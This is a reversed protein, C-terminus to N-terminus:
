KHHFRLSYLEYAPFRFDLCCLVATRHQYRRRPKFLLPLLTCDYLCRHLWVTKVSNLIYRKDERSLNSKKPPPLIWLSALLHNFVHFKMNYHFRLQKKKKLFFSTEYAIRWACYLLGRCAYWCLCLTLLGECAYQCFVWVCSKLHGSLPKHVILCGQVDPTSDCLVDCM